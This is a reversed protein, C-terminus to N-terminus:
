WQVKCYSTFIEGQTMVARALEDNFIAGFKARATM